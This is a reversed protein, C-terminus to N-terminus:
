ERVLSRWGVYALAKKLYADAMPGSGNHRRIVCVWSRECKTDYLLRLFKVGCHLNHRYSLSILKTSCGRDDLRSVWDICPRLQFRGVERCKRYIRLTDNSWISDVVGPGRILPSVNSRTEMWAVAEVVAHPVNFSDAVTRLRISDPLAAFQLIMLLTHM